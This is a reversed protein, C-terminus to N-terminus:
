EFGFQLCCVCVFSFVPLRLCLYCCDLSIFLLCRLDVLMVFLEFWGCLGFLFGSVVALCLLVCALM